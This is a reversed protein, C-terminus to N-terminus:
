PTNREKFSNGLIALKLSEDANDPLARYHIIEAYTPNGLTILLWDSVIEMGQITGQKSYLLNELNEYISDCWLNEQTIPGERNLTKFQIKM